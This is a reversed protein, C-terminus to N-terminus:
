PRVNPRFLWTGCWHDIWYALLLGVILFSLSSAVVRGRVTARTTEAQYVPCMSSFIGLGIGGVMREALLVGVSSSAAQIIAGISIIGCGISINRRRGLYNGFIAMLIAGLMAALEFIGPVLGTMTSDMPFHQMFNTEGLVGGLVGLDYGFIIWGFGSCATIGITAWRGRLQFM